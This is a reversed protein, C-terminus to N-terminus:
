VSDITAPEALPGAEFVSTDDVGNLYIRDQGGNLIAVVDLAGNNRTDALAIRTPSTGVGFDSLPNAYVGVGQNVWVRLGAGGGMSQIIDLDGDADVDGLAVDTTAATGLTQASDTFTGTGNNLWIRNIGDVGEVIDLDGDNDT